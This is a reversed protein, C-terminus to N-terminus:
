EGHGGREDPETSKSRDEGRRRFTDVSKGGKLLCSERAGWRVQRKVGDAGGGGHRPPLLETGEPVVELVLGDVGIVEVAEGARIPKPFTRARWPAGRVEVTGLPDVATLATGSAGSSIAGPRDDADLVPDAGDGPHRLHRVGVRRRRRARAGGVRRAARRVSPLERAGVVVVGVGTWVRPVGAQIDVAFGFTALLLLFLGVPRM